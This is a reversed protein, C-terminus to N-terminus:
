VVLETLVFMRSCKSKQTCIAVYNTLEQQIKAKDMFAQDEINYPTLSNITLTVLSESFLFM